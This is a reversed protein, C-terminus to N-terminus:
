GGQAKKNRKGEEDRSRGGEGMENNEGIRMKKGKM